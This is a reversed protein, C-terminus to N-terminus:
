EERTGYEVTSTEVVKWTKFANDNGLFQYLKDRISARTPVDVM